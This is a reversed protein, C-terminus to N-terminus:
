KRRFSLKPFERNTSRLYLLYLGIALLTANPTWAAVAPPLRSGKGFALFLFM